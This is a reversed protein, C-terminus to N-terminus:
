PESTKFKKIFNELTGADKLAPATEFGSNLDIGAWRTHRFRKLAELSDPDLGGSLIFPIQERYHELVEWDFKKGSGGYKDSPTDFLFYDCCSTYAMVDSLDKETGLAFAKIVQYGNEQLERCLRPTENGHLQIMDLQFLKGQRIIDEYSSDVFVGVRKALVPLYAPPTNVFRPSRRYFIFGMWDAGSAEVARINDPDKMGCVKVIM